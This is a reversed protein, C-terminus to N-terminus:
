RCDHRTVGNGRVRDFCFGKLDVRKIRHRALHYCVLNEAHLTGAQAKRCSAHNIGACNV